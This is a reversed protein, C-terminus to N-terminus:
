AEVLKLAIKLTPLDIFKRRKNLLDYCVSKSVGLERGLEAYSLDNAKKYDQLKKILDMHKGQTTFKGVILDYSYRM